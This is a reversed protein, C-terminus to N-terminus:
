IELVQGIYILDPDAIKNKRVIDEMPVGFRDAIESLTDGEQVIYTKHERDELIENVRGQILDYNYGADTLRRYRDEDNGWLGNIVEEALEDITKEEPEPLPVDPDANYGNFGVAKIMKPFDEFSWNTDVRFYGIKGDSSDQWMDFSEFDVDPQSDDWCAIWKTYGHLIATNFKSEFWYLSAYIGALYGKDLLYDCFAIIADTVGQYADDQWHPDEVDIYIPYEFKKGKLCNEYLYRAEEEGQEASDACSYWYAGVPYNLKRSQEYFNEFWADKNKSRSAGYGTYGARLIAFEYGNRKADALQLSGQYESIDIGRIM